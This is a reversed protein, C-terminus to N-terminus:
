RAPVPVDSLARHVAAGFAEPSFHDRMRPAAEVISADLRSPDLRELVTAFDRPEDAVYAATELPIGEMAVPTAVIPVGLSLFTLTKMKIGAGSWVPVVGCHAATLVPDLDAVFGRYDLNPVAELWASQRHSAGAGVVTLRLAAKELLPRCAVVLRQLGIWNPAYHLNSMWVAHVPGGDYREARNAGALTAPLEVASPVVAVPVAGFQRRVRDAETDSTAWVATARRIVRSEFAGALPLEVLARGRAALSGGHTVADRASAVLVNSKDWVYPTGGLAGAYAGAGEGVLVVLDVDPALEAAAASLPGSRQGEVWPPTRHLLGALSRRVQGGLGSRGIAPYPFARVDAGRLRERLAQLDEATTDERELALVVLDAERHLAELLLLRRIADGHNQPMPFFPVIALIRRPAVGGGTVGRDGSNV